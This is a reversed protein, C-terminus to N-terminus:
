EFRKWETDLLVLIVVLLSRMKGAGEETEEKWGGCGDVRVRGRARAGVARRAEGL